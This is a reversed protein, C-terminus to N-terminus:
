TSQTPLLSHTHRSPVALPRRTPAPTLARAGMAGESFANSRLHAQWFLQHRGERIRCYWWDAGTAESFPPAGALMIFLVVGASWLDAPPGQYAEAALLEPAMYMRTGCHTLLSRVKGAEDAYSNALGFDAVKLRFEHDLLLNEPKIDRHAIGAEHTAALATLLQYFYARAISEPFAGTLKLFDFLEGPVALTSTLM